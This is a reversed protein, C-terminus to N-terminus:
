CEGGTKAGPRGNAAAGNGEIFWTSRMSEDKRPAATDPAWFVRTLGLFLLKVWKFQVYINITNLKKVLM